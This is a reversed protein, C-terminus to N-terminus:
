QAAGQLYRQYAEESHLGDHVIGRVAQLLSVPSKDQFINRGIAVGQAGSDICGAIRDLFTQVNKEKGGGAIVVPVPCCATIQKVTELKKPAATKVIDAGLEWAVRVAHAIAKDSVPQSVNQGRVYVMVLLPMQWCRCADAVEGLDGLMFSENENGLNIHVSVGDVGLRLAEEVSGVLVKHHFDLGLQTSASLHLILGPLPFDMESIIKFTGKHLIISDTGGRIARELAICMEELGLIPGCSVGHDMPTIVIKEDPGLIRKLRLKKGVM